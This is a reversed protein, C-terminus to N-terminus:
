DEPTCSKNSFLNLIAEDKPMDRLGELMKRSSSEGQPPNELPIGVGDEGAGEDSYKTGLGGTATVAHSSEKGPVDQM